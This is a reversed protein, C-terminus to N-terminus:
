RQQCGKHNKFTQPLNPTGVGYKLADNLPSPCNYIYIIFIIRWLTENFELDKLLSWLDVFFLVNWSSFQMMVLSPVWWDGAYLCWRQSDAHTRAWDVTDPAGLRGFPILSNLHPFLHCLAICIYMLWQWFMYSYWCTDLLKHDNKAMGFLIIRMKWYRHSMIHNIRVEWRSRESAGNFGPLLDSHFSHILGINAM